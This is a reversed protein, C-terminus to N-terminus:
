SWTSSGGILGFVVRILKCLPSQEQQPLVTVPLGGASMPLAPVCDAL